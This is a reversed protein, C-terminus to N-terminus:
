VPGGTSAEPQPLRPAPLLPCGPDGRPEAAGNLEARLRGAQRPGGEGRTPRSLAQPSGRPPRATGGTPEPREGSRRWPARRRRGSPLRPPRPGLGRERRPPAKLM